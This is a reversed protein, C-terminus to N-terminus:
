SDLVFCKSHLAYEAQCERLLIHLSVDKIHGDDRQTRLKTIIAPIDIIDENEAQQLAMDTTIYTGTRGVGASSHPPPSYFFTSTCKLKLM